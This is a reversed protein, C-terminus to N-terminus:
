FFDLRELDAPGPHGVLAAVRAARPMYYRSVSYVADQALRAVVM